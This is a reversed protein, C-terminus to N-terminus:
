PGRRSVLLWAAAVQAACSILLLSVAAAYCPMGPRIESFLISVLLFVAPVVLLGAVIKDVEWSCSDEVLFL